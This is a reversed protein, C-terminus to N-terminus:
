SLSPFARWPMQALVVCTVLERGKVVFAFKHFTLISSKLTESCNTEITSGIKADNCGACTPQTAQTESIRVEEM